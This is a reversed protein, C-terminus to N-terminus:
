RKKPHAFKKLSKIFRRLEVDTFGKVAERPKGRRRAQRDDEEDETEDEEDDDEEEYDEKRQMKNKKRKGDECDSDSERLNKRSRPALEM